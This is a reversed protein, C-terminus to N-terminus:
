GFRLDDDYGPNSFVLALFHPYHNRRKTAEFQIKKGNPSDWKINLSPNNTVKMLYNLEKAVFDYYEYQPYTSATALEALAKDRRVYVSTNTLVTIPSSRDSISIELQPFDYFRRNAEARMLQKNQISIDSWLFNPETEVIWRECIKRLFDYFEFGALEHNQKASEAKIRYRNAVLQLTTM